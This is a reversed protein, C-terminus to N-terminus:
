PARTMGPPDSDKQPPAKAARAPSIAPYRHRARWHAPRSGRPLIARHLILTSPNRLHASSAPGIDVALVIALLEHCSQRLRRHLPVIPSLARLSPVITTIHKLRLSGTGPTQTRIHSSLRVHILLPFVSCDLANEGRALDRAGQLIQNSTLIIISSCGVHGALRHSCPCRPRPTPPLSLSSIRTSIPTWCPHADCRTTAGLSQRGLFEEGLHCAPNGGLAPWTRPCLYNTRTPLQLATSICWGAYQLAIGVTIHRPCPNSRHVSFPVAAAPLLLFGCRCAVTSCCGRVPVHFCRVLAAGEGGASGDVTSRPAPLHTETGGEAERQKKGGRGEEGRRGEGYVSKVLPCFVPQGEM